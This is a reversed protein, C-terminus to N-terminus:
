LETMNMRMNELFSTIELYTLAFPYQQHLPRRVIPPDGKIAGTSKYVGAIPM